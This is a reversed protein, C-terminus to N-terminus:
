PVHLTSLVMEGLTKCEDWESPKAQLMVVAVGLSYDYGNLSQDEIYLATILGPPTKDSVTVQYRIDGLQLIEDPIPFNGSPGVEELQCKELVM